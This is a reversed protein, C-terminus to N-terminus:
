GSAVMSGTEWKRACSLCRYGSAGRVVTATGGKPIPATCDACRMGPYKVLFAKVRSPHQQAAESRQHRRRDKDWDRATM